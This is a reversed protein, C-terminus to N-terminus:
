TTSIGKLQDLQGAQEAKLIQEATMNELDATTLQKAKDGVPKGREGATKSSSNVPKNAGKFAVLKVASEEIEDESTGTLLDAPVGHKQAITLKLNTAKLSALETEAKEARKTAKDIESLKEEQLQDYAKAKEANSAARRENKRSLEKWRKAEQEWDTEKVEQPEQEETQSTDSSNEQETETVPTEQEQTPM